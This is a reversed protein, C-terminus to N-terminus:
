ASKSENGKNYYYYAGIIMASLVADLILLKKYSITPEGEPFKSDLDTIISPKMHFLIGAIFIPIVAFVYPPKAYQMYGEKPTDLNIPEMSAPALLPKVAANAQNYTLPQQSM